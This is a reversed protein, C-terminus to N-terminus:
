TSYTISLGDVAFSKKVNDKKALFYLSKFVSSVIDQM